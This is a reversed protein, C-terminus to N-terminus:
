KLSRGAGQGISRRTAMIADVLRGCASTARALVSIQESLALETTKHPYNIQHDTEGWLEEALTRVQIECTFRPKRGPLACEYHVSTYFDKRVRRLGLRRFYDAYEPDWVKAEPGRNLVTWSSKGLAELLANHIVEFQFTHLHIIRGGVLDNIKTLYNDATIDFSKGEQSRKRWRRALKDRLHSRDKTRFKFSHVEPCRKSLGKLLSELHDSVRAFQPQDEEFRALIEDFVGPRPEGSERGKKSRM